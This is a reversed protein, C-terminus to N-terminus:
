GAVKVRAAFGEAVRADYDLDATQRQPFREKLKLFQKELLTWSALSAAVSFLMAITAFLLQAVLGQLGVDALLKVLGLDKLVLSIPQHFVYLAYSYKGFFRLGRTSLMRTFWGNRNGAVGAFVAATFLIALLTFGITGTLPENKNLGGRMLVLSALMVAAVSAVPRVWRRVYLHLQRDRLLLALVAGFVLTDMRAPALVFAAIGVGSAFLFIRLLLSLVIIAACFKLLQRGSLLVVVVPWFLYFQEEVALSWFHVVYTSTEAWDGKLTLLVNSLHTWYWLQDQTNERVNVSDAFLLPLALFFIALFAYYLPFIRLARRVYFTRFYGTGGKSEYLIGTILFGSLVFFLDVGAWGASAVNYWGRMMVTDVPIGSFWTFHFAMVSLIAIGRLGDLAPIHGRLDPIAAVRAGENKVALKVKTAM